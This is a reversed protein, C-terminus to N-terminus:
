IRVCKDDMNRCGSEPKGKAVCARLIQKMASEITSGKAKFRGYGWAECSWAVGCSAGSASAASLSIIRQNQLCLSKFPERMEHCEMSFSNMSLMLLLFSLCLKRM